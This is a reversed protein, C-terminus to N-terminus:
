YGTEITTEKTIIPILGGNGIVTLTSPCGGESCSPFIAFSCSLLIEEFKDIYKALSSIWGSQVADLVYAIEKQTISPQSIPIFKM